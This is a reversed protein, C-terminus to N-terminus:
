NLCHYHGFWNVLQSLTLAAVLFYISNYYDTFITATLFLHCVLLGRILFSITFAPLSHSDFQHSPKLSAFSLAHHLLPHLSCLNWTSAQFLFSTALTMSVPQSRNGILFNQSTLHNPHFRFCQSFQGHISSLQGQCALYDKSKGLIWYSDFKM